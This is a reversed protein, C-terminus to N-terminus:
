MSDGESDLVLRVAREADDRIKRVRGADKGVIKAVDSATFPGRLEKGNDLVYVYDSSVWHLYFLIERQEYPLARAARRVLAEPYASIGDEPDPSFPDALTDLLTRDSDPSTWEIRDLSTVVEAAGLAGAIHAPTVELMEAIDDVGLDPDELLKARAKLRRDAVLPPLRITTSAGSLGRQIAQKIWLTAYTSFRYGREPDFKRAARDLGLVGEQIVDSYPLGRNRYHRAISVVLRINSLILKERASDDGAAARRALDREEQATLLRHNAAQNLFHQLGTDDTM